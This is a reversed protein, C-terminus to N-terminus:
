DTGHTRHYYPSIVFRNENNVNLIIEHREKEFRGAIYEYMLRLTEEESVTVSKGSTTSVTFQKEM